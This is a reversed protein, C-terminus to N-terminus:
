RVTTGCAVRTYASPVAMYWAASIFRLNAEIPCMALLTVAFYFTVFSLIAYCSAGPAMSARVLKIPLFHFCLRRSWDLSTGVCRARASTPLCTTVTSRRREDGLEGAEPTTLASRNQLPLLSAKSNPRAKARDSDVTQAASQLM